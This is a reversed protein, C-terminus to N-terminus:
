FNHGSLVKDRKEKTQTMSNLKIDAHKPLPLTKEPLELRDFKISM